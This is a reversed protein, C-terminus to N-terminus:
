KAIPPVTSFTGAPNFRIGLVSIQGGAPTVFEVTGRRLATVPFRTDLQFSLHALAQIPITNSQIVVGNDDRINVTVNAFQSAVNAMAVGTVFGSTNDFALVYAGANGTLLPVVAEHQGSPVTQRFVAFGNVNGTSLLQAWGVQTAQNDPGTSEILLTAGPALTRDVTAVPAQPVNSTQPFTLPLPLPNGNDDFFNLRAQSAATGTNVLTFITKWLGASALHAMSGAFSLGGSSGVTLTVNITQQNVGPSSLIIQGTYTGASLGAGNATVTLTAPTTANSPSVTLWNQGQNLTVAAAFTIQAGSAAGSSTVNITQPAPANSNPLQSFTLSGPSVNLTNNSTVSLTV